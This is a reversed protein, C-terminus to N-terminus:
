ETGSAGSADSAESAEAFADLAARDGRLIGWAMLAFLLLFAVIVIGVSDPRLLGVIGGAVAILGGITVPLLAAAHGAEWAEQSALYYHVRIGVAHNLKIVGGAAFVTTGVVVVAVAFLTVAAAIM